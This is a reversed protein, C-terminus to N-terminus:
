PVTLVFAGDSDNGNSLAPIFPPHSVQLYSGRQTNVNCRHRHSALVVPRGDLSLEPDTLSGSGIPADVQQNDGYGPGRVYVIESEVPLASLAFPVCVVCATVSSTLAALVWRRAPKFRM